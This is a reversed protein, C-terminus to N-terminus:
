QVSDKHLIGTKHKQELDKINKKVADKGTFRKLAPHKKLLRAVYKEWIDARDKNNRCVTKDEFDAKAPAFEAIACLMEPETWIGPASDAEGPLDQPAPCNAPDTGTNAAAPLVGFAARDQESLHALAPNDKAVEHMHAQLKALTVARYYQHEQRM